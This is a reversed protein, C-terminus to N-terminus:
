LFLGPAAPQSMRANHGLICACDASETILRIFNDNRVGTFTFLVAYGGTDTLLFNCLAPILAAAPILRFTGPWVSRSCPQRRLLHWYFIWSPAPPSDEVTNKDQDVSMWLEHSRIMWPQDHKKLHPSPLPSTPGAWEIHNWRWPLTILM